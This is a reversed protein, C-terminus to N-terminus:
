KSIAEGTPAPQSLLRFIPPQQKIGATSALSFLERNHTIMKSYSLLLDTSQTVNYDRARLFKELFHDDANRLQLNDFIRAKLQDIPAQYIANVVYGINLLFLIIFNM